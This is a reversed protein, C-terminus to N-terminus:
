KKIYNNILAQWKLAVKESTYNATTIKAQESFSLQLADDKILQDMKQILKEQDDVPILFGNAGDTILDAPGYDCDTSICPLGFHMAELLVNPFGETKSAFVFISAKSYYDEINKIDSLIEIQHSLNYSKILDNLKKKNAGDGIFIVKWESLNLENVAKIIIDHGKDSTLRGVSLIIKERSVNPKRHKSLDSSIPNPLVTIRKSNLMKIFIHKVDNTQVILHDAKPYIQKRLVRWFLTIRNKLPNNRESILCPIRNRKAALAAIINASTIFGIILDIQEKKVIATVKNLIAYNLKLSQFFSTPKNIHDFCSVVKIKADLRYFPDSKRFTIIVVEFEEILENSLTSIVREAGGSTLSGIVFAIKKKKHKM